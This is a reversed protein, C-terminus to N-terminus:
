IVEEYSDVIIASIGMDELPGYGETFDKDLLDKVELQAIHEAHDELSMCPYFSERFENMFEPTFKTEDLTVEVTSVVMVEFTM